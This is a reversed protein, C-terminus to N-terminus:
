RREWLATVKPGAEAVITRQPAHMESLAIVHATVIKTRRISDSGPYLQVDVEVIKEGQEIARCIADADRPAVIHVGETLVLSYAEPRTV